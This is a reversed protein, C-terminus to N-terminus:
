WRDGERQQLQLWPKCVAAEKVRRTLELTWQLPLLAMCRAHAQKAQHLWGLFASPRAYATGSLSEPDQKQQLAIHQCSYAWAGYKASFAALRYGCHAVTFDSGQQQARELLGRLNRVSQGRQKLPYIEAPGAYWGAIETSHFCYQLHEPALHPLVDVMARCLVLMSTVAINKRNQSCDSVSLTHYMDGLYSTCGELSM